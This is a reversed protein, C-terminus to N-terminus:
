HHGDLSVKRSAFHWQGNVKRLTDKYRGAAAQQVRGDKCHYYVLYCSGMGAEAEIKFHVNTIVHLVQAGGLSDRYIRTFKRLGEQGSHKGFRSSEFVGDETFCALWDDYEANDIASAYRAYLDHIDLRDEVSGKIEAM